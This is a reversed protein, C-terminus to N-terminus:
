VFFADLGYMKETPIELPYIKLFNFLSLLSLVHSLFIIM